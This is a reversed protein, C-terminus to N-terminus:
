KINTTCAFNTQCMRATCVQQPHFGYYLSHPYLRCSTPQCTKWPTSFVFCVDLVEGGYCMLFNFFRYKEYLHVFCNILYHLTFYLGPIDLFVFCTKLATTFVPISNMIIYFIQLHAFIIICTYCDM